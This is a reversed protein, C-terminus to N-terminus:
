RWQCQFQWWEEWEEEEESNSGGGGIAPRWGYLQMKRSLTDSCTMQGCPRELSLQLLAM